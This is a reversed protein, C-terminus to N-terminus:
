HQIRKHPTAKGMSMQYSKGPLTIGGFSECIPLCRGSYDSKWLRNSKSHTFLCYVNLTALVDLLLRSSHGIDFEWPWAPLCFYNTKDYKFALVLWGLYCSHCWPCFYKENCVQMISYNSRSTLWKDIMVAISYSKSTSSTQKDNVQPRFLCVKFLFGNCLIKSCSAHLWTNGQTYACIQLWWWICESYASLYSSPM